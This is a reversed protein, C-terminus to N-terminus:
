VAQEVRIKLKHWTGPMSRAAEVDVVFDGPREIPAGVRVNAERAGLTRLPTSELQSAIDSAKVPSYLAGDEKTARAFVLIVDAVRAQLLRQAREAEARRFEDGELVVKFRVRNPETAYVAVGKPILFNRAFGPAVAVEQGRYGLADYAEKLVVAVRGGRVRCTARQLAAGSM